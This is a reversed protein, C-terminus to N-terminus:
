PVLGRAVLTFLGVIVGVGVMGILTIFLNWLRAKALVHMIRAHEAENTEITHLINVHEQDNRVMFTAIETLKEIIPSLSVDSTGNTFMSYGGTVPPKSMNYAARIDGTSSLANYFLQATERAMSDAIESLTCIANPIHEDVLTQGLAATDCGNLFILLAHVSRAIQVLSPADLLVGDSIEVGSRSAHGAYHVIDFQRNRIAAFLRERTVRGQLNMTNFGADFQIADIEPIVGMGSEPVILLVRYTQIPM